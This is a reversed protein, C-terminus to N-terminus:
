SETFDGEIVDEDTPEGTQGNTGPGYGTGGMGPQPQEYMSAGIQQIAEGLEDAVRKIRDTDTGELAKRVDEIKSEISQRTEAPIKEGYDHLAREATFVMSDARNRVEVQERRKADEGAHKEAENVMGQIENESLGSSATITIKQERGTAKDKASVNLIGNADIDFAM